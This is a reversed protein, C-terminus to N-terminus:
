GSHEDTARPRRRRRISVFAGAVVGAAASVPILAMCPLGWMPASGITLTTIVSISCLAGSGGWVTALLRPQARVALMWGLAFSAAATFLLMSIWRQALLPWMSASVERVAVGVAAGSAVYPWLRSARNRPSVTVM